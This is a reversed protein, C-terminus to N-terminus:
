NRSPYIGELAIVFNVVLFPPLNNHPQSGGATGNTVQPAGMQIGSSAASAYANAAGVAPFGNQPSGVTADDLSCPLAVGVAHQHVPMETPILTHTEEGSTQGMTRPTLGAGTGFHMPFRGQIGDGGYTTGLLSFLASNQAIAMLQGNCFAYGRPAFNFGVMKIEGLFPEM